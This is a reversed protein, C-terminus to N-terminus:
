QRVPCHIWDLGISPLLEDGMPSPDTLLRFAGSPPVRAVSVAQSPGRPAVRTSSAQEPLRADVSLNALEDGMHRPDVQQLLRVPKTM